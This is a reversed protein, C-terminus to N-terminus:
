DVFHGVQCIKLAADLEALEVAREHGLADLQLKARQLLHAEVLVVHQVQEGGEVDLEVLDIAVFVDQGKQM